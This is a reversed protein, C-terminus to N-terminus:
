VALKKLESRLTRKEVETLARTLLVYAERILIADVDRPIVGTTQLQGRQEVTLRDYTRAAADELLGDPTTDSITIHEPKEDSIRVFSEYHSEPIISRSDCETRLMSSIAGPSGVGLLHVRAGFTKAVNVGPILDADGSVLIMDNIAKNQSLLIMDSIILGDVIKQDGLSNFAGLRLTINNTAELQSHSHARGSANAADYWYIRLFTSEPFQRKCEDIMFDRISEINMDIYQKEEKKSSFFTFLQAWFYSSDIFVASQRM